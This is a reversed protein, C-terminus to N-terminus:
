TLVGSVSLVRTWFKTASYNNHFYSCCRDAIAEREEDHEIYYKVKEVLNEKRREKEEEEIDVNWWKNFRIYDEEKYKKQIASDETDILLCGCAPGEFQRGEVFEPRGCHVVIKSTQLINYYEEVPLFEDYRTTFVNIGNNRLLDIVEQRPGHIRGPMAVDHTRKKGPNIAFNEDIPLWLDGVFRKPVHQITHLPQFTFCRICMPFYKEMMDISAPGIDFHISIVPINLRWAIYALIVRDPNPPDVKRRLPTFIVADPKTQICLQVLTRDVDQIKRKDYRSVLEKADCWVSLWTGLDTSDFSYEMNMPGESLRGSDPDCGCWKENIFILHM